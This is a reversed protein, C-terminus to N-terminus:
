WGRLRTEGTIGLLRPRSLEAGWTLSRHCWPNAPALDIWDKKLFVADGFLEHNWGRGTIMELAPRERNMFARLRDRVEGFLAQFIPSSLSPRLFLFHM